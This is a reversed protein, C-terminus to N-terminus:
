PSFFHFLYNSDPVIDHGDHCDMSEHELGSPQGYLPEGVECWQGLSELEGFEHHLELVLILQFYRIPHKLLRRFVCEVAQDMPHLQEIGDLKIQTQRFVLVYDNMM